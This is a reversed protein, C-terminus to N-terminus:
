PREILFQVWDAPPNEGRARVLSVAAKMYRVAIGTEGQRDHLAALNAQVKPEAPASALLKEYANIADAGDGRKLALAALTKHAAASDAPLLEGTAVIQKLAQERGADDGFHAAVLYRYYGIFYHEASNADVPPKLANLRADASALRRGRDSKGGTGSQM